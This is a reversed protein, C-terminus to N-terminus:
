REVGYWLDTLRAGVREVDEASRIKEHMAMLLVFRTMKGAADVFRQGGAELPPLKPKGDPPWGAARLMLAQRACEAETLAANAAELEAVRFAYRAKDDGPQRQAIPNTWWEAFRTWWSRKNNTNDNMAATM